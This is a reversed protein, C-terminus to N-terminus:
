LISVCVFFTRAYLRSPTLLLVSVSYNNPLDDGFVNEDLYQLRDVAVCIGNREKLPVAAEESSESRYEPPVDRSKISQRLQPPHM